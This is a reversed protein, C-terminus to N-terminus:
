EIHNRRWKGHHMEEDKLNLKMLYLMRVLYLLYVELIILYKKLVRLLILINKKEKLMLDLVTNASNSLPYRRGEQDAYTYVGLSEFYKTANEFPEKDKSKLLKYSIRIIDELNSDPKNNTINASSMALPINLLNMIDLCIKDNPMRVGITNLGSNLINPISDSKNFIITLPGPWFNEILKKELSNINNILNNLMDINSILVAIPKNHNRNKIKYLNNISATNSYICGIGYVTDTPIIGIGGNKLINTCVKINETYNDEFTLIKTNM